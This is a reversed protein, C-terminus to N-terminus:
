YHDSHKLAEREGLTKLQKWGGEWIRIRNRIKLLFPNLTGLNLQTASYWFENSVGKFSNDGGGVFLGVPDLVHALWLSQLIPLYFCTVLSLHFLKIVIKIDIPEPADLDIFLTVNLHKLETENM